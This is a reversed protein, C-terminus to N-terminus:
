PVVPGLSEVAGSVSLGPRPGGLLVFLLGAAVASSLGHRPTPLDPWRTWSGAAPDFAEVDAFTGSSEEGGAAVVHGLFAAATLGGRATPMPAGQAWRDTGPDYIEITGLNTSLSQRRGGVAYLKGDLAAAGLHDRPTPLDAATSWTNRAPDYAHFTSLLSGDSGVGGVLYIKGDLPAAAHAGRAEPLSAIPTWAAAGSDLRMAIPTPVFSNTTYGGLVYVATDLAVAATHHIPIPYDPGASWTGQKADYIEVRGSAANGERYGGIVYIRDDVTAAAVETRPTPASAHSVWQLDPGNTLSAQPSSDSETPPGGCGALLPGLMGLALWRVGRRKRM